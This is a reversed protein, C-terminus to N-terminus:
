NKYFNAFRYTKFLNPKWIFNFRNSAENLYAFQFGLKLLIDEAALGTTREEASQDGEETLNMGGLTFSRPPFDILIM